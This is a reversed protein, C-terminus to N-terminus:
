GGVGKECLEKLKQLGKPYDKRMHNEDDPRVDLDVRLEKGEPIQLLTFNEYSPAWKRVTESTTDEVGNHIESIYRISVYEHLRNEAIVATM